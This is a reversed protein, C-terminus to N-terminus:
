LAAGAPLPMINRYGLSLKAYCAGQTEPYEFSTPAGFAVAQPDYRHRYVGSIAAVEPGVSQMLKAIADPHQPIEDDECILLREGCAIQIARLYLGAM